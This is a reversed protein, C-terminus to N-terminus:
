SEANELEELEAKIKYMQERVKFMAMSYGNYKEENYDFTKYAMGLYYEYFEKLRELERELYQKM